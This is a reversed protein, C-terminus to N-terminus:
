INNDNKKEEDNKDYNYHQFYDCELVIKGFKCDILFDPRFLSGRTYVPKNHIFKFNNVLLFQKIEDEKIKIVKIRYNGCGACLDKNDPIHVKLSCQKCEKEILEIDTELQHNECRIPQLSNDNEYIFTADNSCGFSKCHPLRKEQSYENLTSHECCHINKTKYLYGFTALTECNLCECRKSRINYMLDLKHEYSKVM